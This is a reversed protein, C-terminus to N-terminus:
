KKKLFHRILTFTFYLWPGFHLLFDFYDQAEMGEAGGVIWRIKGILHPEPFFPALGLTMSLVFAIIISRYKEQM